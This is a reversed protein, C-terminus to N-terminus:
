KEPPVLDFLNRDGGSPTEPEEQDAPAPPEVVGTQQELQRELNAIIERWLLLDDLSSELFEDQQLPDLEPALDGFGVGGGVAPGYPGAGIIQMSPHYSQSDQVLKPFIRRQQDASLQLEETMRALQALAHSEVRKALVQLKPHDPDLPDVRIGLQPIEARSERGAASRQDAAPRSVVAGPEAKPNGVAAQPATVDPGRLVVFVALTAAVILMAVGTIFNLRHNM